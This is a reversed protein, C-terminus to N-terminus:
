IRGFCYKVLCFMIIIDDLALHLNARALFDNASGRSKDSSSLLLDLTTQDGYKISWLHRRLQLNQWIRTWKIHKRIPSCSIHYCPPFKPTIQTVCAITRTNKDIYKLHFNLFPLFLSRRNNITKLWIMFNRPIEWHM